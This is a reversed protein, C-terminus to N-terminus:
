PGQSEPVSVMPESVVRVPAGDSLREHGEVVLRSLGEPAETLLYEDKDFLFPKFVVKRAVTTPVDLSAKGIAGLSLGAQLTEGVFFAWAEDGVRIAASAPVVVAKTEMVSVLARGVMGPRLLREDNDLEIEVSFLGTAPDAAPPVITVYGHRPAGLASADRLKRAQSALAEVQVTVPQGRRLLPLKREVVGVVLKVKTLDVISVVPQGPTVTQGVELPLAAVRGSFPAVLTADQLNVNAVTFSARASGYSAEAAARRAKVAELRAESIAVALQAKEVERPNSAGSERLRTYRELDNRADKLHAEADSVAADAEAMAAQAESMQAKAQEVAAEYRQPDIVALVDGRTVEDDERLPTDPDDGLQMLRGAIQFGMDLRAHAQVLGYFSETLTYPRTRLPAARVVAPEITPLTRQSQRATARLAAVAGLACLLGLFVALITLRTKVRLRRGVRRSM